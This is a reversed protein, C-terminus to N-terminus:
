IGRTDLDLDHPFEWLDEHWKKGGTYLDLDHPFEWLDEHWKLEELTMTLIMHFNGYAKM